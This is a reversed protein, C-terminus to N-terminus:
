RHLQLSHQQLLPFFSEFCSIQFVEFSNCHFRATTVCNPWLSITAILLNDSYGPPLGIFYFFPKETTQWCLRSTVIGPNWLVKTQFCDSECWSINSYSDATTTSLAYWCVTLIDKMIREWRMVKSGFRGLIKWTCKWQSTRLCLGVGQESWNDGWKQKGMRACSSVCPSHKM